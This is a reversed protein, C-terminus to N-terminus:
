SAWNIKYTAFLYYFTFCPVDKKNLLIDNVKMKLSKRFTQEDFLKDSKEVILLPNHLCLTM